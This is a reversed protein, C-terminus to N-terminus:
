LGALTFAGLDRWDRVSGETRWVHIRRAEFSGWLKTELERVLGASTCPELKGYVLSLHPLYDSPADTLLQRAAFTHSKRLAESVHVRVYLCQFYQDSAEVRELNVSVPALADALGRTADMVQGESVSLAGILTVHPAFPVTGLRSALREILDALRDHVEGEPMLWLSLKAPAHMRV